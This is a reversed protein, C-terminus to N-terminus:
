LIELPPMSCQTNRYLFAGTEVMKFGRSSM